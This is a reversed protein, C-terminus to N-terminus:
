QQGPRKLRFEESKENDGLQAYTSQVAKLVNEDEPSIEYAKLLQELAKEYNAKRWAQYEESKKTESMELFNNKVTFEENSNFYLIGLNFLADFYVPDILLAEKFDSEAKALMDSTIKYISDRNAVAQDLEAKLKNKDAAKTARKYRKRIEYASDSFEQGKKMIKYANESVITGRYFLYLTNNPEAAIVENLKGVLIDTRGMQTYISLEQNFLDKNDPMKERGKDIVKLAATTDGDQLALWSLQIYANASLYKPDDTMTTLFKKAQATDGAALSVSACNGLVSNKAVGMNKETGGTTDAVYADLVLSWFELSKAYDSRQYYYLGKNYANSAASVINLAPYEAYEATGLVEPTYKKKRENRETKLCNIYSQLGVYSANSDLYAYEASGSIATYIHGRTMWMRPSNSTSASLAAEDIFQKADNLQNDRLAIAASEIVHNQAVAASLSVVSLVVYLFTRKM